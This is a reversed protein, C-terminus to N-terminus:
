SSSLHLFFSFLVEEDDARRACAEFPSDSDQTARPMLPMPIGAGAGGGTARRGTAKGIADADAEDVDAKGTDEEEEEYEKGDDNETLPSTM